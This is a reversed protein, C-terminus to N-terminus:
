KCFILFPRLSKQKRLTREEYVRSQRSEFSREEEIWARAKKADQKKQTAIVVRCRCLTPSLTPAPLRPFMAAIRTPLDVYFAVVNPFTKLLPGQKTSTPSPDSFSFGILSTESLGFICALSSDTSLECEWGGDMM